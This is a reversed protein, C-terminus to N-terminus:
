PRELDREETLVFLYGHREFDIPEGMEDEFREFAAISLRSMEVNVSTSFQLRVGGACKATSGTGLAEEREFVVIKKVGRMALHYAISAGIIGGGIIAVNANKTMVSLAIPSTNEYVDEIVDRLARYLVSDELRPNSM